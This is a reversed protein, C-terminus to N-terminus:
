KDARVVLVMLRLLLIILNAIQKLYVSIKLIIRTAITHMTYRYLGQAYFGLRVARVGTELSSTVVLLKEENAALSM